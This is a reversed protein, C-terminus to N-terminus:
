AHRTRRRISTSPGVEDCLFAGAIEDLEAQSPARTPRSASVNRWFRGDPDHEVSALVFLDGRAFGPGVPTSVPRWRPPPAVKLFTTGHNANTNIPRATSITMPREREASTTRPASDSRTATGRLASCTNLKLRISASCIPAFM